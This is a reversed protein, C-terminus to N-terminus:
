RANKDGNLVYPDEINFVSLIRREVKEMKQAEKEAGHDYGLLHLVGHVAMHATHHELDKDQDKAERRVTEYAVIVDGLNITHDSLSKLERPSFQPFSLVNTPKSIKRFNKNLKAMRRDDTFVLSLSLNRKPSQAFLLAARAWKKARTEIQPLSKRWAAHEILVTAFLRLGPNEAASSKTMAAKM